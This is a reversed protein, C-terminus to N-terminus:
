SHTFTHLPHVYRECAYRTLTEALGIGRTEPDTWVQTIARTGPIARSAAVMARVQGDVQAIYLHGSALLTEARGKAGFSDLIRPGNASFAKCMSIVSATHVASAQSLSVSDPMQRSTPLILARTLTSM